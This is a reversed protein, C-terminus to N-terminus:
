ELSQSLLWDNLEPEAYAQGDIDHGAGPYVALRAEGGCAELAEVLSAEAHRM